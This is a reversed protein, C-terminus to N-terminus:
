GWDAETVAGGQVHVRVRVDDTGTVTLVYDGAWVEGFVLSPQLGGGAVPRSVVAVHPAHRHHPHPDGVPHLEVELGDLGAPMRVVLAGVDGGIDLLVAGQGAFANHAEAGTM